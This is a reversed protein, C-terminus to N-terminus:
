LSPTASLPTNNLSKKRLPFTKYKPGMLLFSTKNFLNKKLGEFIYFIHNQFKEIKKQILTNNQM